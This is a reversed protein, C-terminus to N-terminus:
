KRRGVIIRRRRPAVKEGQLQQFEEENLLRWQGSQLEELGITGIRSRLLDEVHLGAAECMKRIHKSRGGHLVFKLRGDAEQEVRHPVIQKGRHAVGKTIRELAQPTVEGKFCVLYEEPYEATPTALRNGLPGDNTLLLLGHSDQDLRGIPFVREPGFDYDVLTKGWPNPTLICDVGVPKYFAIVKKQPPKMRRLPKGNIVIKEQGSIKDGLEAKKGNVTIHGGRIFQEAERRSCFGIDSLYKQIRVRKM